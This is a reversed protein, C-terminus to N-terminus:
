YNRIGSNIICFWPERPANVDILIFTFRENSFVVVSFAFRIWCYSFIHFAHTVWHFICHFSECLHSFLETFYMLTIELFAVPKSTNTTWLFLVTTFILRIRLLGYSSSSASSTWLWYDSTNSRTWMESLEFRKWRLVKLFWTSPM